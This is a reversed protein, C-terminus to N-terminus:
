CPCMVHYKSTTHTQAESNKNAISPFTQASPTVNYTNVYKIKYFKLFIFKQQFRPQLISSRSNPAELCLILSMNLKESPWMYSGYVFVSPISIYSRAWSFFDCYNPQLDHRPNSSPVECNHSHTELLLSWEM